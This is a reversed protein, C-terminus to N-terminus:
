GPRQAWPRLVGLQRPARDGLAALAGASIEAPTHWRAATGVAPPVWGLVLLHPSATGAVALESALAPLDVAGPPQGVPAAVASTLVAVLPGAVARGLVTLGVVAATRDGPLYALAAGPRDPLGTLVAALGDPDDLDGVVGVAGAPLQALRAASRGLVTVARGAAVLSEVAPRLVGTGGVVLVPDATM